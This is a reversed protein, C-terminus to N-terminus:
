HEGTLINQLTASEVGARPPPLISAPAATESLGGLAVRGLYILAERLACVDYPKAIIGLAGGLDAPICKPTGTFFVYPIGRSCLNRGVEIGSPGDLLHVDVLAFDIPREEIAGIVDRGAMVPGVVDHGLQALEDFLEYALLPEDEVVLVTLAAEASQSTPRERKFIM